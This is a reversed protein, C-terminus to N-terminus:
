KRGGQVHTTSYAEILKKDPSEHNYLEYFVKILEEQELVKSLLGIHALEQLVSQSKLNLINRADHIFSNKDKAGGAKAAGKELFSYSIVIYFKKDLVENNNVLDAVFNRYQTIHNKLKPNSTASAQRDLNILYNSIDLKRSVIVIQISYNLSNLLSAYTSIKIQQEQASQLSFNTATVEVVQCAKRNPLLVVDGIIEEIGIFNQTTSKTKHATRKM